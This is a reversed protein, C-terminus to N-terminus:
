PFETRVVAGACRAKLGTAEMALYRENLDGIWWALLPGLLGEYCISLTVRTGRAISEVKHQATVYVGPVTSVWTFSVGPNLDTVRWLAPPLGPQHIRFRGGVQLPGSSLVKVRSISATWEPWREVDAMVSWVLPSPASIHISQSFTTQTM